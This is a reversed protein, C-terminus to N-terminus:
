KADPKLDSAMGIKAAYISAAKRLGAPPLVYKVRWNKNDAQWWGRRLEDEQACMSNQARRLRGAYQGPSVMLFRSTKGLGGFFWEKFEKFMEWYEDVLPFICLPAAPQPIFAHFNALVAGKEAFRKIGNVLYKLEEYDAAIEGPLGLVFFWQVQVSKNLLNITHNILEDNDVKKGVAIRLRESVGEVGIRVGKVMRRNLQPIKKLGDFRISIFQQGAKLYPIEEGGDNTVIAYPVSQSRIKALRRIFEGSDACPIYHREWGTQCFLCKYKCGRSLFLRVYGDPYMIPPMEWPFVQSPVVARSEGKVWTEPLEKAAELGCKLLVDMFNKGEGVCIADAYDEYIAPATCGGGGLIKVVNKNKARKLRGRVQALAEQSTTTILLIDAEGIPTESINRKALEYKLWSAAMGCHKELPYNTDVVAIKPKM